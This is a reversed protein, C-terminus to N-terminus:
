QRSRAKRVARRMSARAIPAVLSTAGALLASSRDATINRRNKEIGAVLAQAVRLASVPKVLASVATTEAPKTLNERDFGPTLTDPPYVLSVTLGRDGYEAELVEGFNRLAAKAPAYGGYGFVGCLGAVSSVLVVHGQGTELMSPLVARVAHVAGFYNLDLQRHLAESSLQEFYGPEAGGAGAILVDCGGSRVVLEAFARRLEPEDTVDASALEVRGNLEQAAAALKDQSRSVLSVRAGRDLCLRAVELGIGESGGTIVVHRGALDTM